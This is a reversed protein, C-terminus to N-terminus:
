YRMVTRQNRYLQLRQQLRTNETRMEQLRRESDKLSQKLDSIKKLSTDKFQLEERTKITKGDNTLDFIPSAM